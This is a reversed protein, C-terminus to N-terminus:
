TGKIVQLGAALSATTCGHQRFAPPIVRHPHTDGTETPHGGPSGGDGMSFVPHDTPDERKCPLVASAAM